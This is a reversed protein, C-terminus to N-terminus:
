WEAEEEVVGMEMGVLKWSENGIQWEVAAPKVAEDIFSGKGGVV